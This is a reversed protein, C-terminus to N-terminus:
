APDATRASRGAAIAALDDDTLDTVPRAISGSHALDLKDGYKKPALKSLLWKRNDSKLRLGAVTVASEAAAAQDGILELEEAQVDLCRARAQTYQQQLESDADVWRLFTSPLVGLEECAKRLSNGQEMGELIAPIAEKGVMEAGSVWDCM